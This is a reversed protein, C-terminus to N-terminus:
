RSTYALMGTIENGDHSCQLMWHFLPHRTEHAFRIVSGRVVFEGQGGFPAKLSLQFRRNSDNLTGYARYDRPLEAGLLLNDFLNWAEDFELNSEEARPFNRLRDWTKPTYRDDFATRFDAIVQDALGLWEPRDIESQCLVEQIPVKLGSAIYELFARKISRGSEANRVTRESVGTRIALECQTFGLQRRLQALKDGQARQTTM